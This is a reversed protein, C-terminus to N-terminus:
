GGGGVEPRHRNHTQAACGESVPRVCWFHARQRRLLELVALAQRQVRHGHLDPVAEPLVPPQHDDRAPPHVQVRRVQAAERVAEQALM